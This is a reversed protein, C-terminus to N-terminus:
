AQDNHGSNGTGADAKIFQAGPLGIWIFAPSSEGAPPLFPILPEKQLVKQFIYL